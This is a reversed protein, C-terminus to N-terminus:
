SKRQLAVPQIKDFQIHIILCQFQLDAELLIFVCFQPKCM